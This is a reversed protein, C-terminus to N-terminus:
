LRRLAIRAADQVFHDPDELAAQAAAKGGPDAIQGLAAVAAARVGPDSENSSSALAVLGVVADTARMMGLAQAAKLRVRPSDDDIRQVIDAVGTFVNIRTSARLARVRVDVNDDAMAQGLEGGPGEYNLRELAGVSALRVVPSPDNVAAEAVFPVGASVLFEGLAEAAFARRSEPQSQDQLTMAVQRYISPSGNAGPNFVGFVRRRLWWVSIERTKPHGDYMLKAVDPICDLCEVREGHELVTWIETPATNGATVQRIREPSSTSELSEPSLNKYVHSRGVHIKEPSVDAASATVLLSTAAAVLSGIFANRIKM